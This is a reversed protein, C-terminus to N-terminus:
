VVVQRTELLTRAAGLLIGALRDAWKREGAGDGIEDNRIEIMVAPLAGPGAHREVTYYVQDGPSYPQNIGVSLDPDAELERILLDSLRRDEGFVIGVQWPRAKGLYVPTYSHVAILATPRRRALRRELCADIAAHYPAHIQDLRRAREAETLGFNAPVPRGESESVILSKAEPDRNCDIILRSADPWFLPGDFRVALRRAVGLAGPDWAIHTLLADEAFGFSMYADPIRNSAHDCVFVFPGPGDPNETVILGREGLGSERDEGARRGVGPLSSKALESRIPM